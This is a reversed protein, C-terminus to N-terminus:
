TEHEGFLTEDEAHFHQLVYRAFWKVCVIVCGQHRPLM